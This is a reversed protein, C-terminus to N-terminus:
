IVDDPILQLKPRRRQYEAHHEACMLFCGEVLTAPQGCLIAQPRPQTQDKFWVDTQQNFEDPNMVWPCTDPLAQEYLDAVREHLLNYFAEYLDSEAVDSAEDAICSDLESRTFPEDTLFEEHYQRVCEENEDLWETVNILVAQAAGQNRHGM